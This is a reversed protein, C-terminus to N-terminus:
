TLKALRPSRRRHADDAKTKSQQCALFRDVASCREQEDAPEWSAQEIFYPPGCVVWYQPIKSPGFVRSHTIDLVPYEVDDSTDLDVHPAIVSPNLDSEELAKLKSVHFIPHLRKLAPPLQIRYTVAGTRHTIPHPGIWRQKFKAALTRIKIDSTSIMVLDGPEFQLDRRHRNAYRQQRQQVTEMSAKATQLDMHWNRIFDEVSLPTKDSNVTVIENTLTLPTIPHRGYVMYFPTFGTTSSRHNNLAFEACTLHQDWDKQYPAIYHCLYAGIHRNANETQGDTQPHYATSLNFHTGLQSFFERWFDSTFKPDRDSVLSKPMGHLRFINDRFVTAFQIATQSMKTPIIHVYKSLRDVFVCISDHGKATKPLGTMFDVSISEWCTTPISLPQLLGAPALSSPKNIQCSHCAKVYSTVDAAMRPWWMNRALIELTTHKGQHGAYKADHAEHLFQRKLDKDNPLCLRHRFYWLGDRLELSKM